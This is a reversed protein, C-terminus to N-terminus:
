TESKNSFPPLAKKASTAPLTDFPSIIHTYSTKSVHTYSETTKLSKHGLLKQITRVDTGQELLHTAYSHRLWHLTGQKAIGSRNVAQQFVLQLSRASYPQGIIVGEFLYHLPKYYQYYERLLQLITAPLPVVRDKAGKGKRILLLGQESDIDIPKLELLEGSRLGCAYILSLMARHKINALTTLLRGVEQRSFYHPLLYEKRPRIIMDSSMHISFIHKYFSKIANINQHQYSRSCKRKNVLEEMWRNVDEKRVEKHYAKGLWTFFALLSHAYIKITKESYRLMQLEKKWKDLDDLAAPMVKFSKITIRSEIITVDSDTIDIDKAPEEEFSLGNKSLLEKIVQIDTESYPIYWCRKTQSWRAKGTSKLMNTIESNYPYSILLVKKEKHISQTLVIKNQPM